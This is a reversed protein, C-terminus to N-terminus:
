TIIKLTSEYKEKYFEKSNESLKEYSRKLKNRVFEAGEEINLGKKVYALYLLSPVSDFHSIADADAVCQEELTLKDNKFSGRHNKICDKVLNIKDKDYNLETLIQDAIEAGHIHHMEYLSYDTISAIDHLWSAIIVVEEDAGYKKALLEGNKVVAEIHYYVGEGFKNTPKQARSYVENKLIKIIDERM